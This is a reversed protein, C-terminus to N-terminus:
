AHGRFYFWAVVCITALVAVSVIADMLRSFQRDNM